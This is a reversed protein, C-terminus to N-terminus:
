GGEGQDKNTVQGHEFIAFEAAVAAQVSLAFTEAEAVGLGPELVVGSMGLRDWVLVAGGRLKGGASTRIDSAASSLWVGFVPAGKM